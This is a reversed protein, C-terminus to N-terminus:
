MDSCFVVVRARTRRRSALVEGMSTREPLVLPVFIVSLEQSDNVMFIFGLNFMCSAAAHQHTACQAYHNCQLQQQVELPELQEWPLFPTKSAHSQLHNSRLIQPATQVRLFPSKRHPGRGPEAWSSSLLLQANVGRDGWDWGAEARPYCSSKSSRKGWFLFFFRVEKGSSGHPLKKILGLHRQWWSSSTWLVTVLDLKRWM